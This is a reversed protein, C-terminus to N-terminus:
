EFVTDVVGDRIVMRKEIEIYVRQTIPLEDVAFGSYRFHLELGRSDVRQGDPFRFANVFFQGSLESESDLEYGEFKSPALSNGQRAYMERTIHPVAGETQQVGHYHLASNVRDIPFIFADNKKINAILEGYEFDAENGTYFSVARYDNLLSMQNHGAVSSASKDTTCLVFMKPVRRGAGGINRVINQADAVSSITTKTLRPELFTYQFDKNAQAYRNMAEGDLFTYDAIMRVDDQNLEIATDKDATLSAEFCARKGVTSSLTLEVQVEEKLMFLPLSVSRLCPILEDLSLSFVPTSNLKQFTQLKMNTDTSANEVTFERGLDM